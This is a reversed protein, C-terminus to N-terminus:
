SNAITSASSKPPCSNEWVNMRSIHRGFEAVEPCGPDINAAVGASKALHISALVLAMAAQIGETDAQIRAREIDEPILALTKEAIEQDECSELSIIGTKGRMRKLWHHRGHGFNRFDAVQVAALAAEHFRTEADAAAAAGAPGHLVLLYPYKWLKEAQQLWDKMADATGRRGAIQEWAPLGADARAACAAESFLLGPRYWAQQYARAMIVMSMLVSNTALFGDKGAPLDYAFCDACHRSRALDALPTQLAACLAGLAPPAKEATERFAGLIDANAGSASFFMVPTNAVSRMAKIALPTAARALRSTYHEHLFCTFSATTLSGGSGVFCAPSKGMRVILAAVRSVDQRRSWAYTEPLLELESAYSRGM